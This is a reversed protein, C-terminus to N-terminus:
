GRVGAIPLGDMVWVYTDYLTRLTQFGMVAILLWYQKPRSVWYEALPHGEKHKAFVLLPVVPLVPFLPLKFMICLLGSWFVAAAALSKWVWM